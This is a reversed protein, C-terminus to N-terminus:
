NKSQQWTNYVEWLRKLSEDKDSTLYSCAWAQVYRNVDAVGRVYINLSGNSAACVLRELQWPLRPVTLVALVDDRKQKLRELLPAPLKSAGRVKVKGSDAYLTVGHKEVEHILNQAEFHWNM